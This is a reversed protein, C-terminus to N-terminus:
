SILNKRKEKWLYYYTYSFGISLVTTILFREMLSDVHLMKLVFIIAPHLCYILLSMYAWKKSNVNLQIQCKLLCGFLLFITPLTLFLYSAKLLYAEILLLVLCLGLYRLRILSAYYGRAILSGLLLLPLIRLLAYSISGWFDFVIFKSQISQPFYGRYAHEFVEICWLLCVILPFKSQPIYRVVVYFLPLAYLLAM